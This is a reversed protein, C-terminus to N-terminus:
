ERRDRASVRATASKVCAKRLSVLLRVAVCARDPAAGSAPFRVTFTNGVGDVDDDLAIERRAADAIERVIALGLGSGDAHKGLLRHFREFVRERETSRFADPRRRQDLRAAAPDAAVRVTM